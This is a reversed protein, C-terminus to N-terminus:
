VTLRILATFSEKLTQEAAKKQEDTGNKSEEYAIMAKLYSRGQADTRLDTYLFFVRMEVDKAIFEALQGSFHAIIPAFPGWALFLFKKTAWAIIKKKM